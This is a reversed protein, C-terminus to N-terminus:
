EKRRYESPSVGVSETFVKSFYLPDSFGSLSAVNKVSTVGNEILMVAHKVRVLRLYESFGM